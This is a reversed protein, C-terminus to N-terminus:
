GRRCASCSPSSVLLWIASGGGLVLLLLCGILQALSGVLLKGRIERPAPRRRSWSRWSRVDPDAARRRATASLGRGDEVWQTYGYLFAYAVTQALLARAYTALLPLNGGLM